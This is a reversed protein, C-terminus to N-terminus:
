RLPQNFYGHAACADSPRDLSEQVRLMREESILFIYLSIVFITM